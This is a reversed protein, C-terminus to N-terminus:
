KYAFSSNSSKVLNEPKFYMKRNQKFGRMTRYKQVTDFNTERNNDLEAALLIFLFVFIFYNYKNSM